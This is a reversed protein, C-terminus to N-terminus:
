YSRSRRGVSYRRSNFLDRVDQGPGKKKLVTSPGLTNASCLKACRSVTSVARARDPPTERACPFAGKRIKAVGVKVRHM